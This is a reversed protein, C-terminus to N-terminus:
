TNTQNEALNKKTKTQRRQNEKFNLVLRAAYWEAAKSSGEYLPDKVLNDRGKQCLHKRFLLAGTDFDQVSFTFNKSHYGRTQWVGDATTVAKKWSGMNSPDKKKLEDRAKACADDVMAEVIPYMYKASLQRFLSDSYGTFSAVSKHLYPFHM